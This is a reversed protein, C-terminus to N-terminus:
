VIKFIKSVVGETKKHLQKRLSFGNGWLTINEFKDVWHKGSCTRHPIVSTKFNKFPTEQSILKLFVSNFLISCIM